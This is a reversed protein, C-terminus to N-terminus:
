KDKSKKAKKIAIKDLKKQTKKSMEYKFDKMYDDSSTNIKIMKRKMRGEAIVNFLYMLPVLTYGMTYVIDVWFLAEGTGFSFAITNAVVIVLLGFSHGLTQGILKFM